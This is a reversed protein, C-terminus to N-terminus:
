RATRPDSSPRARFLRCSKARLQDLDHHVQRPPGGKGMNRHEFVFLAGGTDKASLMTALPILGWIMREGESFRDKGAPVLIGKRLDKQDM